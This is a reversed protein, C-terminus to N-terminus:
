IKKTLNKLTIGVIADSDRRFLVTGSYFLKNLVNIREIPDSPWLTTNKEGYNECLYILIAHSDTLTVSSDRFTPVTHLPTIEIFSESFMEGRALDIFKEEVDIELAEILLLVSRVPPSRKDLYLVPKM